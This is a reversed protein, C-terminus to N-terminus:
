EIDIAHISCNPIGILGTLCHIIMGHCVVIVKKHNAYRGLVDLVRKKVDCRPEWKLNRDPSIVGNHKQEELAIKNLDEISRAQYTLDLEQERLDIEVSMDIGLNKSLIASTQMARTYPSSIILECEKLREDKSCEIAQHIGEDTLPALDLGHGMFNRGSVSEYTHKGHRILYFRVM